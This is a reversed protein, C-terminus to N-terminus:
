QEGELLERLRSLRHPDEGIREVFVAVTLDGFRDLLRELQDGVLKALTQQESMAPYFRFSRSEKSHAVLGKGELRTLCTLITKPSLPRSKERNIISTIENATGSRHTWLSQLVASELPGFLEIARPRGRTPAMGSRGTGTGM